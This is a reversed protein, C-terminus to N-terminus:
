WSYMKKRENNNKTRSELYVRILYMQWNSNTIRPLTLYEM